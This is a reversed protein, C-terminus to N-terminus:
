YCRIVLAPSYVEISRWDSFGLSWFLNRELFLVRSGAVGDGDGLHAIPIQGFRLFAADEAPPAPGDLGGGEGHVAAPDVHM